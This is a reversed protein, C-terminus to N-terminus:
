KALIMKDEKTKKQKTKSGQVFRPKTQKNKLLKPKYFFKASLTSLEMYARMGRRGNNM